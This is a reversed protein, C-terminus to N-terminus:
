QLLFHWQSLDGDSDKAKGREHCWGLLTKYDNTVFVIIITAFSLKTLVSKFSSFVTPSFTKFWLRSSNWYKTCRKSLRSQWVQKFFCPAFVGNHIPLTHTNSHLFSRCKTLGTRPRPRNDQRFVYCTIKSWFEYLREANLARFKCSVSANNPEGYNTLHFQTTQNCLVSM